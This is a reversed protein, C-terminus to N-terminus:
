FHGSLLIDVLEGVKYTDAFFLTQRVDFSISKLTNKKPGGTHLNRDTRLPIHDEM